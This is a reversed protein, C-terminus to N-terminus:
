MEKVKIYNIAIELLIFFFDIALFIFFIGKGNINLKAMTKTKINDKAWFTNSITNKNRKHRPNINLNPAARANSTSGTGNAAKSKNYKYSGNVANYKM